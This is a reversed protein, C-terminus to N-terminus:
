MYLEPLEVELGRKKAAYIMNVTRAEAEKGLLYGIVPGIGNVDNRGSRAYQMLIADLHKELDAINGKGAYGELISAIKGAYPGKNLCFALQEDPVTFANVLSNKGIYGGPIILSSFDELDWMLSRARILSRINTLDVFISFYDKAYSSNKDKIIHEMYIFIANDIAVSIKRPSVTRILSKELEELCLKLPNPLLTYNKEAVSKELVELSFIGGEELLERLPEELLRAKFLVKLNHADIHLLFLSTIEPEPTVEWVLRRAEKLEKRILAELNEDDIAGGGYGSDQLIKFFDESEAVALKKLKTVDLVHNELTKIRGIAYPYSSQPM